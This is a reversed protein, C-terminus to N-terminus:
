TAKILLNISPRNKCDTLFQFVTLVLLACRYLSFVIASRARYHQELCCREISEKLVNQHKGITLHVNIYVNIIFVYMSSTAFYREAVCFTHTCFRGCLSDTSILVRVSFRRSITWQTWAISICVVVQAAVGQQLGYINIYQRPSPNEEAALYRYVFSIDIKKWPWFHLM